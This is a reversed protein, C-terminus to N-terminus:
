GINPFGNQWQDIGDAKLAAQADHIIEIIRPLDNKEAKRYTLDM